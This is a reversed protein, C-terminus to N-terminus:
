EEVIELKNNKFDKSLNKLIKNRDSKSKRPKKETKIKLFSPVPNEQETKELWPINMRKSAETASEKLYYYETTLTSTHGLMKSVLEPKNGSELLIHAFSHRISHAHIHKGNLGSDIAIKKIIASIRSPSIGIDEGRGPFLYSSNSQRTTLIYELLIKSLNESVPFTFWKNGKEITRGSKNITITNNVTSTIHEFKINSVGITRMGTSIMLLFISLYKINNKCTEYMKELEEKTIRHTDHDDKTSKVPHITKKYLEFKDLHSTDGIIYCIFIMTYHIKIRLAKKPHVFAISNKIDEYSINKIDEFNSIKIKHYEIFNIIYSIVLRISSQSNYKTNTKLIKIFHLISQKDTNDDQLKKYKTPMCFEDSNKKVYKNKIISIKKIFNQNINTKSLLKKLGSLSINITSYAWENIDCVQKMKKSFTISEQHIHSKNVLESFKTHNYMLYLTQTLLTFVTSWHGKQINLSDYPYYKKLILIEDSEEIYDPEKIIFESM